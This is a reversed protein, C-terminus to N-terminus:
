KTLPSPTVPIAFSDRQHPLLGPGELCPLNKLIPASGAMVGPYNFPALCGAGSQDGRKPDAAIATATATLEWECLAQMVTSYENHVVYSLATPSSLLEHTRFRARPGWVRGYLNDLGAQKHEDLCAANVGVPACLSWMGAALQDPLPLPPLKSPGCSPLRQLNSTAPWHGRWNIGVGLKTV